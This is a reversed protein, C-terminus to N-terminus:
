GALACSAPDTQLLPDDAAVDDIATSELPTVVGDVVAHAVYTGSYRPPAGPPLDERLTVGLLGLSRGDHDDACEYGNVATAGGGEYVFFPHGDPGSVPVLGVEGDYLYIASAVANAGISVPVVVEAVRNGDVDSVRRDAELVEPQDSPLMATVTGSALDARLQWGGGPDAQVTIRDNAGDDDLDAWTVDVPAPDAPAEGPPVATSATSAVELAATADPASGGCGGVLVAAGAAALARTAKTVV